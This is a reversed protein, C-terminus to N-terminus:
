NTAVNWDSPWGADTGSRMLLVLVDGPLRPSLENNSALSATTVNSTQLLTDTEVKILLRPAQGMDTSTRSLHNVSSFSRVTDSYIDESQFVFGFNTSPDDLQQQVYGAIDTSGKWVNITTFAGFTGGNGISGAPNPQNTWTVAEPNWDALALGIDFGHTGPWQLSDEYLNIHAELIEAGAPLVPMMFHVYTRQTGNVTGTGVNDWFLGGHAYDQITTVYADKDAALWFYTIYKQPNPNPTVTSGGGSCGVGSLIYIAAIITLIKQLTSKM